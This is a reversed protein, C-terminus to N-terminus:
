AVRVKKGRERGKGREENGGEGMTRREWGKGEGPGWREGVRHGAAASSWKGARYDKSAAAGPEVEPGDRQRGGVSAPSGGRARLGPCM